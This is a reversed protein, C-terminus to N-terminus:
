TEFQLFDISTGIQNDRKMNCSSRYSFRDPVLHEMKLVRLLMTTILCLVWASVDATRTQVFSRELLTKTGGCFEDQKARVFGWFLEM